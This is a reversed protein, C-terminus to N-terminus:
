FLTVRGKMLHLFNIMLATNCTWSLIIKVMGYYIFRSWWHRLPEASLAPPRYTGLEIGQRAQRGLRKSNEKAYIRSSNRLFVWVSPVRGVPEPRALPCSAKFMCGFLYFTRKNAFIKLPGFFNVFSAKSKSCFLSM